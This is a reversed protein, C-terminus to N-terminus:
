NQSIQFILNVGVASFKLIRLKSSFFIMPLNSFLRSNSLFILHGFDVTDEL